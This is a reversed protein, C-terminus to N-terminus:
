KLPSPITFKNSKKNKKHKKSHKKENCYKDTFTQCDTPLSEYSAISASCMGMEALFNYYKEM